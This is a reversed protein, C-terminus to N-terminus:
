SLGGVKWTRRFGLDTLTQTQEYAVTVAWRRKPLEKLTVTQGIQLSAELWCVLVAGTDEEFLHYQRLTV